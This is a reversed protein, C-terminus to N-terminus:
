RRLVSVQGNDYVLKWGREQWGRRNLKENECLVLDIGDADAQQWDNHSALPSVQWNRRHWFVRFCHYTGVAVPAKSTEDIYVLAELLGRERAAEVERRLPPDVAVALVSSGALFLVTATGTRQWVRDSEEVAKRFRDAVVGAVGHLGMFVVYIAVPWFFRPSHYPWLVILVLYACVLSSAINKKQLCDRIVFALGVVGLVAGGAQFLIRPHWLNISIPICSSVLNKFHLTVLPILEQGGAQGVYASGFLVSSVPHFLALVVELVLLPIM